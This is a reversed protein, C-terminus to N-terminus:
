ICIVEIAATKPMENNLQTKAKCLLFFVLHYDTLTVTDYVGGILTLGLVM